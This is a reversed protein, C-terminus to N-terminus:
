ARVIAKGINKGELMEIFAKPMNEFGETITENYRLRGEQIWQLNQKFSEEIRDYFLYSQFGEMVLQNKPFYPQVVSVSFCIIFNRQSLIQHPFVKQHTTQIM